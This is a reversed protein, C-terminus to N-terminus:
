EHVHKGPKEPINQSLLMSSHADYGHAIPDVQTSSPWPTFEYVQTQSSPQNPSCQLPSTSSHVLIGQKFLPTQSSDEVDSFLSTQTAVAVDAQTATSTRAASAWCCHSDTPSDAQVKMGESPKEGVVQMAVSAAAQEDALRAPSTVILWVEQVDAPAHM